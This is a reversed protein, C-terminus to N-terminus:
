GSSIDVNDAVTSSLLRLM